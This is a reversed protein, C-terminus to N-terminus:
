KATLPNGNFQLGDWGYRMFNRINQHGTGDPDNLVDNRYYDGFLSLTQQKDLNNQMAFAFIKCSGENTGASNVLSGNTFAAPSYHYNKNIITITEDFTIIQNNQIKKIFLALIM